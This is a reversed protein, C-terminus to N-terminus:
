CRYTAWVYGGEEQRIECGMRKYYGLMRELELGWPYKDADYRICGTLYCIPTKAARVYQSFWYLGAFGGGLGQRQQADLAGYYPVILTDETGELLRFIYAYGRREFYWGLFASDPNGQTLRRPELRYGDAILSQSIPDAHM